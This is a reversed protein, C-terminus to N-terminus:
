FAKLNPDRYRKPIQNLVSKKVHHQWNFISANNPLDQKEREGKVKSYSCGLIRSIKLDTMGSMYLEIFQANDFSITKGM